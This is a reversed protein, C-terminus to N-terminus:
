RRAEREMQMHLTLVGERSRSLSVPETKPAPLPDFSMEVKYETPEIFGLKSM